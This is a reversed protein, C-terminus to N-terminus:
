CHETYIQFYLEMDQIKEYFNCSHGLSPPRIVRKNAIRSLNVTGLTEHVKNQDFLRHDSSRKKVFPARSLM